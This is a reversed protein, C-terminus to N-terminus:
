GVGLLSQIVKNGGVGGGGGGSALIDTGVSIFSISADWTGTMTASSGSSLVYNAGCSHSAVNDRGLETNNVSSVGGSSTPAGHMAVVANGNATTVTVTSTSSSGTNTTFNPFAVAVSTQNVGTFCACGASLQTSGTWSIALTNNGSDPNLLGFLVLRETTGSDGSGIQTMSVGNWTAVIGTVQTQFAMYCILASNSLSSGVTMDTINYSTGVPSHNFITNKSNFAVAM